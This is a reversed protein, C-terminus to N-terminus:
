NGKSNSKVKEHVNSNVMQYGETEFQLVGRLVEQLTPRSAVFEGPNKNTQLHRPKEKM